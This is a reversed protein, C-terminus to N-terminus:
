EAYILVCHLEIMYLILFIILYGSIGTPIRFIGTVLAAFVALILVTDVIKLPKTTFFRFVKRVGKPGTVDSPNNKSLFATFIIGAVFFSWFIVALITATVPYSDRPFAPIFFLVMSSLLFSGASWILYRSKLNM